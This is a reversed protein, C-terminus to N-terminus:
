KMNINFIDTPYVGMQLRELLEMEISNELQAAVEAKAERQRDRKETRCDVIMCNM